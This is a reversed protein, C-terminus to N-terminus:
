FIYEGAQFSLGLLIFILGGSLLSMVRKFNFKLTRAWAKISFFAAKEGYWTDSKNDATLSLRGDSLRYLIIAAPPVQM